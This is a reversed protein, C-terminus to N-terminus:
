WRLRLTLFLNRGPANIGSSFTRYQLDLLNDIGAQLTFHQGFHVAGRLNYTQWAPMGTAPAYQENDEGNLLYDKIDKKGNFLTFAEVNFRSTHYRLGLRGYVPPIHDLPSDGGAELQVRGRTYNVSGYAALTSTIDVELKSSFGWLRAEQQNQSAYVRSKIGDFLVSDQGNLQFVDSVIANRLFTAWLVNEWHLRDNWHHTVNVDLSYSREPKLNTNPVVLTGNGSDFVKALDDVNPVRYGSAANFALRWGSQAMPDYVVGISGSVVPNSQKAESFPFKFFTQDIFKANLSAFGVRGGESFLWKSDAAPAWRHTAFLAATSLQSGGDPYRTSGSQIIGTSVNERTATSNVHNYQGDLGVNLTNNGWAKRAQVLLGWVDLKEIRHTINAQNVNRTHRSEEINQYSLSADLQDFWGVQQLSFQYAGMLRKQPGYYWSASNLGAGSPDTLRDYRPIDSSTSYQINLGHSVRDSPKFLFKQVLDYQQYGSFKQLYPDSNRVLSDRGGIREIYFNRLGFASDGNIKKGMKLDDYDSFTLSTFSGFRRGGLSFDVHGTKENNVSGYRTFASGTTKFGGKSLVPNKTYLCIAGGLADSGYVNSAPGFLVEVRDLSGQDTTVLNQLHGARYIANNMRVGDIVLLVRNSEFGRLVPSGGGMQSKQVFALGTNQILDATTQANLQAIKARNLISIQQAVNGVNESTRNASIVTERISVTERTSDTQAHLSQFIGSTCLCLFIAKFAISMYIQKMSKFPMCACPACTAYLVFAQHEMRM